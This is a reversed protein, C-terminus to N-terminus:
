FDGLPRTFTNKVQSMVFFNWATQIGDAGNPSTLVAVPVFFVGGLVTGALGFPRLIACDFIKSVVSPGKPEDAIAASDREAVEAEVEGEAASELQQPTEPGPEVVEEVVAEPESAETGDVASKPEIADARASLALLSLAALTGPLRLSPRIRRM